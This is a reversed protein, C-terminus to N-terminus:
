SQNYTIKWESMASDFDGKVKGLDWINSLPVKSESLDMRVVRSKDKLFNSINDNVTGVYMRAIIPLDCNKLKKQNQLKSHGFAHM